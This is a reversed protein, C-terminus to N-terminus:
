GLGQNVKKQIVNCIVNELTERKESNTLKKRFNSMTYFSLFFLTSIQFLINYTIIKLHNINKM